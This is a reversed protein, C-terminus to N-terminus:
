DVLGADQIRVGPVVAPNVDTYRQLKKLELYPNLATNWLYDGTVAGLVTAAICCCFLSIPWYGWFMISSAYFNRLYKGRVVTWAFLVVTLARFFLICGVCLWCLLSFPFQLMCGLMACVKGTNPSKFGIGFHNSFIM